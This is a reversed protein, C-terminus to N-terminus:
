ECPFPPRILGGKSRILRISPYLKYAIPNRYLCRWFLGYRRIEFWGSLRYFSGLLLPVAASCEHIIPNWIGSNNDDSYRCLYWHGAKAFDPNRSCNGDFGPGAFIHCNGTSSKNRRLKIPYSRRDYHFGDAWFQIAAYAMPFRNGSDIFRSVVCCGWISCHTIDPKWIATGM